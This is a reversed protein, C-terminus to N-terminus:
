YKICKKNEEALAEAVKIIAQYDKVKSLHFTDCGLCATTYNKYIM